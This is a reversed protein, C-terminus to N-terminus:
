HLYREKLVGAHHLRHGAAIFGIGAASVQIHNALGVRTWTKEQLNEFLYKFGMAVTHYERIIEQFSLQDAYSNAAFGDEDFGILNETVGRAISLARYQFVREADALHLIMTKISWKGPQYRYMSKEESINALCRELEHYSFDLAETLHMSAPVLSIYRQQYEDLQQIEPRSIITAM